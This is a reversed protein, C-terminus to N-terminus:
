SRRKRKRGPALAPPHLLVRRQLLPFGAQGYSSRKIWKVKNVFVRSWATIGVPQAVLNSRPAGRSRSWQREGWACLPPPDHSEPKVTPSAAPHVHRSFPPGLQDEVQRQMERFGSHPYRKVAKPPLRHSFFFM